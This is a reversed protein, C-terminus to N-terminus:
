ARAGQSSAAQVRVSEASHNTFSSITKTRRYTRNTAADNWHIQLTEFHNLDIYLAEVQDGTFGSRLLKVRQERTELIMESLFMVGSMRSTAPTFVKGKM